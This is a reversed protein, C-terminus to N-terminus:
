ATAIVVDDIVVDAKSGVGGSGSNMALGAFLRLANGFTSTNMYPTAVVKVNDVFLETFGMTADKKWHLEIFHWNSDLTTSASLYSAETSQGTRILLRWKYTGDWNHIMSAYCLYSAYWNSGYAWALYLNSGLRGDWSVIKAYFSLYFESLNTDKACEAAENQVIGPTTMRVAYNGTHVIQSQLALTCGAGNWKDPGAFAWKSLSGSEFGDSFVLTPAVTTSALILGTHPQVIVSKVLQGDLTAYTNPLTVTYPTGTPNVMVKGKSFDRSYVSTSTIKYYDGLPSVLDLDHLKQTLQLMTSDASSEFSFDISNQLPYKIGLLASCYGYLMMQENTCGPPMTWQLGAGCAEDFLREPHNQLWNDQMWVVFNLSKLWDAETMFQNGMGGGQYWCGESMLGNMASKSLFDVVKDYNDQYFAAGSWIGNVMLIKSGIANKIATHLGLYGNLVETISFPLGTKPNIPPNTTQWDEWGQVSTTMGCDAMVGDFYLCTDLRSKILAAVWAQYGPNTNDVVYLSPYVRSTVYSGDGHKLLWGNDKAKQWNPDSREIAAVNQYMFAKYRPNLSKVTNIKQTYDNTGGNVYWSQSIDFHSAITKADFESFNWSIVYIGIKMSQTSQANAVHMLGMCLLFVTIVTAFFARKM